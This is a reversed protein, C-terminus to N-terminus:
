RQLKGFPFQLKAVRHFSVAAVQVRHEFDEDPLRKVLDVAFQLQKQFEDAVSQSTDIIFMLDVKCEDSLFSVPPHAELQSSKNQTSATKSGNTISTKTLLKNFKQEVIKENLKEDSDQFPQDAAQFLAKKNTLNATPNNLVEPSIESSKQNFKETNNTIEKSPEEKDPSKNSNGSNSDKATRELLNESLDQVNSNTSTNRPCNFLLRSDFLFRQVTNQNFVRKEDGAYM